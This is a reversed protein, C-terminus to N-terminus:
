QTMYNMGEIVGGSSLTIELRKFLAFFENLTMEVPIERLQLPPDSKDLLESINQHGDLNSVLFKIGVPDKHIGHNDGSRMIVGVVTEDTIHGNDELWKTSDTIHSLDAAVSGKLDNYFVSAEFLEM